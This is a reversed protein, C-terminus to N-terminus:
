TLPQSPTSQASFARRPIDASCIPKEAIHARSVRTTRRTSAWPWACDAKAQAVVGLSNALPLNWMSWTYVSGVSLHVFAMTPPMTWRAGSSYWSDANPVTIAAKSLSVPWTGASLSPPPPAEAVIEETKALVEEKPAEPKATTDSLRRVAPFAATTPRSLTLRSALRRGAHGLM